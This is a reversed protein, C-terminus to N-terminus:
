LDDDQVTVMGYADGVTVGRVAKVAVVYSRGDGPQTNGTVAIPIAITTAGSPVSVLRATSVGTVQDVVFVRVQGSGTGTVRAPAQYTVTGSNGEVVMREGLDVRPLAIPQPAPTGARWGWADILWVRGSTSRPVLELGAIRSLDLGAATANTLPMRIEQGWDPANQTPRPLGDLTTEGLTARRGASDVLAVELRNGVSGASMVVRLAVSQATSVSVATAPRMRVPTGPASWSVAVAYRGAEPRVPDFGAFHPSISNDCSAAVTAAVQECLRAGAGTVVTSADPVLLPTRNAGVAHSLV